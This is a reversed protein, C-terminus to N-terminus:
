TSTPDLVVASDLTSWGNNQRTSTEGSDHTAAPAPPASTVERSSLGNASVPSSRVQPCSSNWSQTVSSVPPRASASNSKAISTTQPSLSPRCAGTLSARSGLSAARPPKRAPQSLIRGKTPNLCCSIRAPYCDTCRRGASSCACRVCKGTSKCSCCPM